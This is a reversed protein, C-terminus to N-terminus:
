SGGQENVWGGKNVPVAHRQAFIALSLTVSTGTVTAFGRVYRRMVNFSILQLSEAASITTFVALPIDVWVSNDASEQMKIAATGAGAVASSTVIATAMKADADVLDVATLGGTASVPTAFTNGPGIIANSGVDLLIGVSM